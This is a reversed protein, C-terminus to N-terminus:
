DGPEDIEGKGIQVSYSNTYYLHDHMGVIGPIVTYGSRDLELPHIPGIACCGSQFGGTPIKGAGFPGISIIKGGAIVVTQDEKAAAGTGDIVRVHNLVVVPADVSVFEVVDPAKQTQAIVSTAVLLLGFLTVFRM